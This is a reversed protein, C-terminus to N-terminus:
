HTHGHSHVHGHHHKPKYNKLFFVALFTVIPVTMILGISGVTTRVIETAFVELNILTGFSGEALSMYMLLPLSTGVYALVLTNVLAGVHERGVRLARTYVESKTIKADANYLETVVAAQTVAIDDLVGLVGIIIAGLLIGTMDLSGKTSFNLYTVEEGVMGTLQAISVAVTALLATLAVAIMTGGYAVASERNFGHTFFIAFFLVGAAVLFSALFPNWGALLGPILVYFIALFSGALALLSRLGQWRGLALVAIVFLAVVIAIGGKRDVNLVVFREVGSVEVLHNVYLRQGKQLQIYDNIITVVEGKKDGELIQVRITQEDVFTETWPIEKKRTDVVEVVKARLTAQYDNVLEQATTLTPVFVLGIVCAIFLKKFRQM